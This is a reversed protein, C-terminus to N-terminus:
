YYEYVYKRYYQKNESSLKGIDEIVLGNEAYRTKYWAIIKKQRNDYTTNEIIRGKNDYLNTEIDTANGNEYRIEKIMNGISDYDCTKYFYISKDARYRIMKIMKNKESYKLEDIFYENPHMEGFWFWKIKTQNGLIDYDYYWKADMKAGMNKNEAKEVIRKKVDYKYLYPTRVPSKGVYGTEEAINGNEDYKYEQHFKMFAYSYSEVQFGNTDILEHFLLKGHGKVKGKKYRYEYTKISKVKNTKYLIREVNDTTQGFTNSAFFQLMITLYRIRKM